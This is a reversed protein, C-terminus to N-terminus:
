HAEMHGKVEVVSVHLTSFLGGLRLVKNVRNVM